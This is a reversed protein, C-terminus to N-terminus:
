LMQSLFAKIRGLEPDDMFIHQDNEEVIEDFDMLEVRDVLTKAFGMEHTVLIM